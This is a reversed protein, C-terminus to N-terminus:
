EEFEILDGFVEKAIIEMESPKNTEVEDYLRVGINIHALKPKKNGAYYQNRYDDYIANWISAPLALYNKIIKENKNIMNLAKVKHDTQMMYDCISDSDFTIIAEDNGFAVVNGSQLTQLLMKDSRTNINSIIAQLTKKKAANGNNLITEVMQITIYRYASDQQLTIPQQSLVAESVKQNNANGKIQSELQDIRKNLKLIEEQNDIKIQEVYDSMKVLGLELYTRKQNTYRM